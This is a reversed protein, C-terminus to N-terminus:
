PYETNNLHYPHSFRGPTPIISLCPKLCRSSRPVVYQKIVVPNLNLLNYFPHYPREICSRDSEDMQDLPRFDM